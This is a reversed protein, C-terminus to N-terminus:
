SRREEVRKHDRVSLVEVDHAGGPQESVMLRPYDTAGDRSAAYYLPLKKLVDRVLADPVDELTLDDLPTSM